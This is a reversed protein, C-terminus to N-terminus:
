KVRNLHLPNQDFIGSAPGKRLMDRIEGGNIEVILGSGNKYSRVEPNGLFPNDAANNAKPAWALIVRDKVDVRLVVHLKAGIGGQAHSALKLLYGVTPSGHYQAVINKERLPLLDLYTYEGVRFLTGAYDSFAGANLAEEDIHVLYDYGRVSSASIEVKFLVEQCEYKGGLKEDRIVDRKEYFPLESSLCGCCSLILALQIFIKIRRM